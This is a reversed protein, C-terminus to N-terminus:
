GRRRCFDREDRTGRELHKLLRRQVLRARASSVADDSKAASMFAFPNKRSCTDAGSCLMMKKQNLLDLFAYERALMVDDLWNVRYSVNGPLMCKEPEVEKAMSNFGDRVANAIGNSAIRQGIESVARCSEVDLCVVHAIAVLDPVDFYGTMSLLFNLMTLLSQKATSCSQLIKEQQQQPVPLPSKSARARIGSGGGGERGGVNISSRKSPSGASAGGVLMLMALLSIM